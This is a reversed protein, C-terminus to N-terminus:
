QRTFLAQFDARERLAAYEPADRVSAPLFRAPITGLWAVARAPDGAQLCARSAPLGRDRPGLPKDKLKEFQSCAAAYQAAGLLAEGYALGLRADDPKAAALEEYIRAADAARGATVYGAAEAERGQDRLAVHYSPSTAQKVFALTAEMVARTADDDNATEFAHYGTAHNIVQWPANHKFARASLSDILRNLPPRDLGARVYLLPLDLRIDPVNAIGYYMVAAKVSRQAPDQVFPLAHSVNGSGGYIAIRSADIGYDRGRENLHAILAGVDRRENGFRIDPTIAIIGRAAAAKAWNAYFPHSRDAGVARNWFILVPADPAGRAPKYIDMALRTTDHQGYTVDRTIAVDADRAGLAFTFNQAYSPSAAACLILITLTRTM